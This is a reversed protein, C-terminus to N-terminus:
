TPLRVIPPYRCARAAAEAEEATDVLPVIIGSPGLDLVQRECAGANTSVLSSPSVNKLENMM